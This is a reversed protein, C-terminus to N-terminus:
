KALKRVRPPKAKRGAARALLWKHVDAAEHVLGYRAVNERAELASQVFARRNEQQATQATLADVMFAHPSKGSAAALANIRSKLDDPLKLTVAPM